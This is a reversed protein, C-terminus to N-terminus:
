RTSPAIRTAAVKSRSRSFGVRLAGKFPKAKASKGGNAAISLADFMDSQVVVPFEEFAKRAAKVWSIARFRSM